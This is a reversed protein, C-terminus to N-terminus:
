PHVVVRLGERREAVEFAEAGRELPFRHTVLSRVDVLGREVLRIARPYTHKMRRVLKITLGRRRAVSAIFTTRDNDPIGALVATGGRKAAAMAAQVAEDNGAVEFVVDLGRGKTAAEIERVERGDGAALVDTAGFFRAADLRHPLLDTAFLGAAGGIRALQLICLGLAGCGFVGVSMGVRLHSLDLAHIAVGLPELMAGDDDSFTKPLPHLYATPWSMYERLAGDTPGQGAFQQAVCFNSNGELCFECQGCSVSPDIAVRQGQPEGHAVVGAAEHGLVLPTVLKADGIGGEMFWHLDSGCLGVSTVRVLTEGPRPEPVPEEHVRLAKLGHLRLTKM